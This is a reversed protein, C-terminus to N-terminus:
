PLPHPQHPPQTSPVQTMMGVKEDMGEYRGTLRANAMKLSVIDGVTDMEGIAGAVDTTGDFSLETNSLDLNVVNDFVKLLNKIKKAEKPGWPNGDWELTFM